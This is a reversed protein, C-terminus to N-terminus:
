VFIDYTSIISNQSKENTNYKMMKQYSTRIAAYMKNHSYALIYKIIDVSPFESLKKTKERHYTINQNCNKQKKKLSM